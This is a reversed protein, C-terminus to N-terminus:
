LFVIGLVSKQDPFLKLAMIRSAGVHVIPDTRRYCPAENPPEHLSPRDSWRRRALEPVVWWLSLVTSRTLHRWGGRSFSICGGGLPLKWPNSSSALNSSSAVEDELPHRQHPFGKHYMHIAEGGRLGGPTLGIDKRIELSELLKGWRHRYTAPWEDITRCITKRKVQATKPEM